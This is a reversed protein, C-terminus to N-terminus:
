FRQSPTNPKQTGIVDIAVENPQTTNVSFGHNNKAISKEKTNELWQMDVITTAFSSKEEWHIIGLYMDWINKTGGGQVVVFKRGIKM